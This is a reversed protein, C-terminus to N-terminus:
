RAVRVEGGEGGRELHIMSTRACRPVSTMMTSTYRVITLHLLSTMMTSTLHLLTYYPITLLLLLPDDDHQHAVRRAEGYRVM